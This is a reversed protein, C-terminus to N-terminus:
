RRPEQCQVLAQGPALEQLHQSAQACLYVHAVAFNSKCKEFTEVNAQWLLVIPVHLETMISSAADASQVRVGISDKIDWCSQIASRLKHQLVITQM